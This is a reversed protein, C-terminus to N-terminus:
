FMIRKPMQAKVTEFFTEVARDAFSFDCRIVGEQRNSEVFNLHSGYESEFYVINENDHLEAVPLTEWCKRPEDGNETFLPDDAAQLCLLPVEVAPIFPRSAVAAYYENVDEFGYLSKVLVEDLDSHSTAALAKEVDFGPVKAQLEKGHKRIYEQHLFTMGRSYFGKGVPSAEIRNLHSQYEFGNCVSVGACLRSFKGTKGLYKVLQNSGASFGVGYMQSVPYRSGVANIVAEMDSIDDPRFVKASALPSNFGRWNLVVARWGLGTVVKKVVSRIYDKGSHGALGPFILVTPTVDDYQAPFAWDICVVGGDGDDIEERDYEVEHEVLTPTCSALVGNYWAPKRYEGLSELRDVITDNLASPSFCAFHRYFNRVHLERDNIKGDFVVPHVPPPPVWDDPVMSEGGFYLKKKRPKASNNGDTVMRNGADKVHAPTDDPGGLFAGWFGFPDWLTATAM